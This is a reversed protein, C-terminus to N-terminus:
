YFSYRFELSYITRKYSYNVEDASTNQRYSAGLALRVKKSLRKQLRGELTLLREVGRTASQEMTDLFFLSGSLNLDVGHFLRPMLYDTRLLLSNTAYFENEPRYLDAIALGLLIHGNKRVYLQDLYLTTTPGSLDDFFSDLNRLRLKFTTDGEEFFKRRLGLSYMTTRGYFKREGIGYLDRATYNYDFEYLLEARKKNWSFNYSGRLAPAITYSDNQFVQSNERNFYHAFTMRIEPTLVFHRGGIYRKSYFFESNSALSATDTTTNSETPNDSELAVNTDSQIEQTFFLNTGQRSLFRGNELLLPHMNHKLLIEDYKTRMEKATDSSEDLAMGSNLLPVVYDAIYNEAYFKNKTNEYVLSALRLYAVQKMTTDAEPDKIIKVYNVKVAKHDELLESIHAIYYLSYPKKFGKKFSIRFARLAADLENMAYLSQGYEFFLDDSKKGLRIAKKFNPIALEHQQLYKYTLALLYHRTGEFSKNYPIKGLSIQAEQYSGKKYLNYFESLDEKGWVSSLLFLSILWFIPKRFSM